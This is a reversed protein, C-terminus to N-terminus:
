RALEAHDEVDAVLDVLLLEEDLEEVVKQRLEAREEEERDTAIQHNAAIEREARQDRHDGRVLLEVRGPLLQQGVVLQQPIRLDLELLHDSLEVRRADAVLRQLAGIRLLRELGFALQPDAIEAQDAVIALRDEVAHAERDIQRRPDRDDAGGAAALLLERQHEGVQEIGAGAPDQDRIVLHLPQRLRDGAALEGIDAIGGLQEGARDGVIQEEPELM